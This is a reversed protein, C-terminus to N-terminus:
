AIPDAAADRAAAQVPEENAAQAVVQRAFRAQHQQHHRDARVANARLRDQANKIDTETIEDGETGDIRVRRAGVIFSRLYTSGSCYDTLALDLDAKTAEPWAIMIEARIGIQLPPKPQGYGKFTGPFRRVLEDRLTKIHAKRTQWEERTMKPM